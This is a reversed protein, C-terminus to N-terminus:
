TRLLIEGLEIADENAHEMLEICLEFPDVSFMRIEPYIAPLKEM